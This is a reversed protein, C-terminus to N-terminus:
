PPSTKLHSVVWKIGEAESADAKMAAAAEPSPVAGLLFAVGNIVRVVTGARGEIGLSQRLVAERAFDATFADLARDEALVLENLVEGVGEVTHATQEAKRRQEPKTVAGMLLVRGGWVEVTVARYARRDLEAIRRGVMSKFIDDRNSENRTREITPVPVPAVAVPRPDDTTQCAALLTVALAALLRKM